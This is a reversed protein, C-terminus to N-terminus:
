ALIRDIIPTNAEPFAYDRLRDVTVWAVEQNEMGRPQGDFRDVRWVDLFISKDSYDHRVEIWPAFEQAHIGIEEQLERKLAAEASEGEEVKGGPFEWLGGQHASLPRRAICVHTSEPNYIVAAVVHLRKLPSNDRAINPM